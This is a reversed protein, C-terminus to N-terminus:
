GIEARPVVDLRYLAAYIVPVVALSMLTSAALGFIIAVAMPQWLDGGNVWLPILGAITTATTLLIPRARMRAADLVAIHPHKGAELEIQIRELLVIANNVVIGALSIVGLFTMFGFYSGTLLLGGTVGITALPITTLVIAAKRMSNFQGVLLIVIIFGAIPLKDTISENAKAETEAVGGLEYHYGAPWAGANDGLWQKMEATLTSAPYGLDLQTKVTITREVDYRQIQSPQWAPEVDAVQKLPVAQGTQSGYVLLSEIKGVDQRDAAVSRLTIPISEAGERFDTTPIGTLVAQLSIAIDENTLGARRARPQDVEVVLKKMRRGWDDVIGKTGPQRRLEAKVQEALTFLTKEDDGSIRVEIPYAVGPGNDLRRATVDLDPFRERLFRDIRPLLADIVAGDTTRVLVLTYSPDQQRGIYNLAFQPEGGGMFAGWGTVGPQGDRAALADDLHAGLAEVVEGSASLPAGQPLELQVLFLPRDTPPFFLSPIGAAGVISAAFLVVAATLSTKRHRLMWDLLRRHGRYIPKQFAEEESGAEPRMFRVALLPIVTLALVWSTLLTITVVKFLPACYEGTESEALYIPLFAAATTLSSTLLPLRLEAASTLAADVASMGRRLLVLMSEAMVIANDVLMGLAIILSAISIQDLGIGLLSMILLTGIITTPVLTAVLAGTRLGLSILMVLLVIGIAQYLNSEFDAIKREVEEPLFAIVQLDIGHPYRAELVPLLARVQEGLAIINGGERLNIGIGLGPATRACYETAFSADVGPARCAAYRTAGGVPLRVRTEPPDVYGRKVDAIDGLTTVEPRGPIPIIMERLDDISEFSGTPELLIREPLAEAPDGVTIAGGSVLINRSRIIGILAQPTLGIAALRKHSYEIFVREDQSGFVKVKAAEDLTLLEDRMDDAVAELEAYTYGDGRLGLVVGYVDWSPDVTPGIIGDPLTSRVADVKRRLEDWVPDPDTITTRLKVTVVSFGALTTSFIHEAEPMEQAAKEIPDTVLEEVREPSAGPFFTLIRGHRITFGPDQDRPLGIYASVGAVLLAALLAYTLRDRSIAIATLNM